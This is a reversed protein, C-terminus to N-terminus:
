RDKLSAELGSIYLPEKCEALKAKLKGPRHTHTYRNEGWEVTVNEHGIFKIHQIKSLCKM